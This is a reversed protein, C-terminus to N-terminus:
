GRREVWKCRWRWAYSGSVKVRGKGRKEWDWEDWTEGEQCATGEDGQGDPVFTFTWMESKKKNEEIRKRLTKVPLSLYTLFPQHALPFM